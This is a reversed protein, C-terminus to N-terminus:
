ELWGEFSRGAFEELKRVDHKFVNRLMSRVEHDLKPTEIQRSFLTYAVKKFWHRQPGHLKRFIRDGVVRQIAMGLETNRRKKSSSHRIIVFDRSWFDESVNLFRFVEQLTERRKDRLDESAIILFRSADFYKLYQEIQMFYLSQPVYEIDDLDSLAENITRHEDSNSYNHVYRSIIREIPDRVVYIFRADPVLDHIRQPVETEKPYASYGGGHAEMLTKVNLPFQRIYWDVGKHWTGSDMFFQMEKVRQVGIEPHARLYYHLSTTGCKEAGIGIVDPVRYGENNKLSSVNMTLGSGMFQRLM